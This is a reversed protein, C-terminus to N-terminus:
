NYYAGSKAGHHKSMAKFLVLLIVLLLVGGGIYAAIAWPCAASGSGSGSGGGAGSGGGSRPGSRPAVHRSAAARAALALSTPSGAPPLTRQQAPAVPAPAASPKPPTVLARADAPRGYFVGMHAPNSINPIAEGGNLRLQEASMHAPRTLQRPGSPSGPSSAKAPSSRGAVAIGRSAM